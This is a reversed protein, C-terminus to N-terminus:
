MRSGCWDKVLGGSEGALAQMGPWFAGLSSVWTRALRGDDMGVDLLFATWPAYRNPKIHYGPYLLQRNYLGVSWCSPAVCRLAQM